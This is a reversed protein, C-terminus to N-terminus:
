DEQQTGEGMSKTPLDPLLFSSDSWMKQSIINWNSLRNRKIHASVKGQWGRDIWGKRLPSQLSILLATWRHVPLHGCGCWCHHFQGGPCGPGAFHLLPRNPERCFMCLTLRLVYEGPTGCNSGTELSLLSLSHTGRNGVGL